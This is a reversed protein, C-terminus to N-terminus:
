VVSLYVGVFGRLGSLCALSDVALRLAGAGGGGGGGSGGLRGGRAFL